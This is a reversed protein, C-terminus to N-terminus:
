HGHVERRHVIHPSHSLRETMHSEKHGWQSYLGHSEGPWFALTPQWKRRWPIKGVWPSVWTEQMEQMLLCTREGNTGGPFGKQTLSGCLWGLVVTLVQPRGRWDESVHGREKQGPRCMGM